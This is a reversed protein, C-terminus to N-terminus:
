CFRLVDVPRMNRTKLGYTLYTLAMKRLRSLKASALRCDGCRPM